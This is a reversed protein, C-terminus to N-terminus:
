VRTITIIEEKDPETDSQKDDFYNPEETIYDDFCNTKIINRIYLDFYNIDAKNLFKKMLERYNDIGNELVIVRFDNYKKEKILWYTAYAFIDNMINSYMIGQSKNIEYIVALPNIYMVSTNMNDSLTSLLEKYVNIYIDNVINTHKKERVSKAIVSALEKSDHIVYDFKANICKIKINICLDIYRDMKIHDIVTTNNDCILSITDTDCAIYEMLLPLYNSFENDYNVMGVKTNCCVSSIVYGFEKFFLIIDSYTMCKEDPYNSIVAIESLTCVGENIEIKDSLNISILDSVKKDDRYFIDIYVKGFLYKTNTDIVSYVNVDKNWTKSNCKVLTLNFYSHLISSLVNFVHTPHYVNSNKHISNYNIIDSLSIKQKTNNIRCYFNYIKQIEDYCKKDIKKNLESILTKISEANNYKNRNIYKFYTECGNNNALIYRNLLLKNFPEITNKTRSIFQNEIRHRLKIDQVNNILDSYNEYTLPIEVIDNVPKINDPIKTLLHSQINITPNINILNFIKNEFMRINKKIHSIDKKDDCKDIMKELFICYEKNKLNTYYNLIVHLQQKFGDCAFYNQIYEEIRNDMTEWEPDLSLLTMLGIYRNILNCMYTDRLLGVMAKKPKINKNIINNRINISSDIFSSVFIDMENINKSILEGIGTNNM